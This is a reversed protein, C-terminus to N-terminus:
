PKVFQPHFQGILHPGSFPKGKKSESLKRKQQESITKGKQAESMKKRSEESHKRGKAAESLKKKTEESPKGGEGGETKNYGKSPNMSDFHKIWYRELNNLDFNMESDFQEIVEFTFALEGYKNWAAQLHKNRHRSNRLDSRHQSVRSLSPGVSQGVYIKSNLTNTIKYIYM